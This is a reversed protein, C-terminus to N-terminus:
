VAVAVTPMEAVTPQTYEEMPFDSSNIPLPEQLLMAQQPWLMFEEIEEWAQMFPPMALSCANWRSQVPVSLQQCFGGRRGEPMYHRCHRCSSISFKSPKM